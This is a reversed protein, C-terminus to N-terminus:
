KGDKKGISIAENMEKRFVGLYQSFTNGFIEVCLKLRDYHNLKRTDIDWLLCILRTFEDKSKLSNNHSPVYRNFYNDAQKDKWYKVFDKHKM